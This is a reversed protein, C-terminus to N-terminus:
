PVKACVKGLNAVRAVSCAGRLACLMAASAAADAYGWLAHGLGAANRAIRSM